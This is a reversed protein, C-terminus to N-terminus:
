SFIWNIFSVLIEQLFSVLVLAWFFTFTLSPIVFGSLALGPFTFKVISFGPVLLTVLLLVIVNIVWRFAGMTILNIPMLLLNLVPKVILNLLFLLIAAWFLTLLNDRYNIGATIRAIIFLSLFNLLVNRLISRM